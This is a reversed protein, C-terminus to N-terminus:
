GQLNKNLYENSSDLYKIRSIIVNQVTIEPVPQKVIARKIGGLDKRVGKLENTMNQFVYYENSNSKIKQSTHTIYENADPYIISHKPIDVITPTDPTIFKEGKPTVILEKKGHGVESIGGKADKTGYKYKPIPTAIAIALKAAGLAGIAVAAPIRLPLPILKDSLARVVALSTEQIIAAINAAKEFRARQEELQRRKIELVERQSNARAEIAIIAAAREQTNTITQNAVEIDKQKQKELLDIQEQIANKQKETNISILDTIVTFVERAADFFKQLNRIKDATSKDDVDKEEKKKKIFFDTIIGQLKNKLGALKAEAKGINDLAETKKKDDPELEARVKAIEIEKELTAIEARIVEVQYNTQLLLRKKNYEEEKILGDAFKKDLLNLQEDYGNKLQELEIENQAKIHAEQFAALEARDAIVDKNIAKIKETHTKELKQINSNKEVTIKEEEQAQRTQLAKLIKNLDERQKVTLGKKTLALQTQRVEEDLIDKSAKNEYESILDILAKSDNYFNETAKYRAAYEEEKNEIIAVSADIEDQRRRKIAEFEAKSIDARIKALDDAYDEEQKTRAEKTEKEEKDTNDTIILPALAQNAKGLEFIAKARKDILKHFENFDEPSLGVSKLFDQQRKQLIAPVNRFPFSSSVFQSYAEALETGSKLLRKQNAFLGLNLEAEVFGAAEEGLKATAALSIGRKLILSNQAAIKENILQLNNIQKTDIENTKDAIENYQKLTELRKSEPISLDNLTAKLVKLTATTEGVSKAAEKYVGKILKSQEELKKAEGVASSLSKVAEVISEGLIAILSGIGLGPILNALTRLAGYTKSFVKTIATGTNSLSGRFLGAAREQTDIAVKVQLAEAQIAKGIPSAKVTNSMREYERLLLAYRARLQDLSGAASNNIINQQKLTNGVDKIEAKLRIEEATLKAVKDRYKQTSKESEPTVKNLLYLERQVQSLETKYVSMLRENEALTGTLRELEDSYSDASVAAAKTPNIIEIIKSRAEEVEIGAQKQAEAWENASIVGEAQAKEIDSVVDGTKGFNSDSKNTIEFPISEVPRDSLRGPISPTIPAQPKAQNAVRNFKEIELTLEAYKRKGAETSTNLINQQYELKKISALAHERSGAVSNEIQAELKLLRNREANQVNLLATEETLKRGAQASEKVKKVNNDISKALGDLEKRLKEYQGLNKINYMEVMGKKKLEQVLALLDKAQKATDDFEKKIAPRNVLSDIRDEAM